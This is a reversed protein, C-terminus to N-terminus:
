LDPLKKDPEAMSFSMRPHMLQGRDNLVWLETGTCPQTQCTVHGPLSGAKPDTTPAVPRILALQWQAAEPQDVLDFGQLTVSRAQEIAQRVRAALAADVGRAQPGGVYLSIRSEVEKYKAVKLQAGASVTGALPKAQATAASVSTVALRAPTQGEPVVSVLESGETLGALRGAGLQVSGDAEVSRVPVTHTLPAFKGDFVAVEVHGEKQPRQVVQPTAEIAALARNYVDGWSEGPRSSRLAQAWHWTLVGYCRRPDVCRANTVPDLEVASEFERAAGIRVGKRDDLDIVDPLKSRLPHVEAVGDSARAGVQVDRTMSGSHCSDSVLVVHDTVEHLAKMWTGVEKDLVDYADDGQSGPARAGHTVWTEDQGRRESALPSKYWSGHGSYHIYVQDGKHVKAALEAFASRIQTHTGNRLLKINATPVKFRDVLVDNMLQIDNAPGQLDSIGAAKYDTIGILLAHVAADADAHGALGLSLTLACAAARGKPLRIKSM